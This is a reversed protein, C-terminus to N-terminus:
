TPVKELISVLRDEMLALAPKVQTAMWFKGLALVHKCPGVQYGREMKDPCTCNFGRKPKLTIRAKYDDTQGRIDGLIVGSELRASRVQIRESRDLRRAEGAAILAEMTSEQLALEDRLQQVAILLKSLSDASANRRLTYSLLKRLATKM